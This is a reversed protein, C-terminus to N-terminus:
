RAFVGAPSGARLTVGVQAGVEHRSREGNRPMTVKIPQGGELTLEYVLSPGLPLVM